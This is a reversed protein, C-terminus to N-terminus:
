MEGVRLSVMLDVIRAITPIFFLSQIVTESFIARGKSEELVFVGLFPFIDKGWHEGLLGNLFSLAQHLLFCTMGRVMPQDGQGQGPSLDESKTIREDFM